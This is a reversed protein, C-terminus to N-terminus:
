SHQSSITFQFVTKFYELSKYKETNETKNEITQICDLFIKYETGTYSQLELLLNPCVYCFLRIEEHMRSAQLPASVPMPVPKPVPMLCSNIHFAILFLILTNECVFTSNDVHSSYDPSAGIKVQSIHSKPDFCHSITLVPLNCLTSHKSNQMQARSIFQYIVNEGINQDSIIYFM